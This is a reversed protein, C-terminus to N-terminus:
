SKDHKEYHELIILLQQSPNRKEKKALAKLKGMAEISLYM